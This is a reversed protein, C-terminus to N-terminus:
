PEDLVKRIKQSLESINYPKQIFGNCGRKMIEIAQGNLAYGSSLMVPLDPQIDRILDFAKGGDIEPMILDLILLDIEDGKRRIVDFAQQGSKAVVVQYGLKELMSKGVDIIMEEDDV